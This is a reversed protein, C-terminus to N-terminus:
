LFSYISGFFGPRLISKFLPSARKWSYCSWKTTSSFINVQKLLDCIISHSASVESRLVGAQEFDPLWPSLVNIEESFQQGKGREPEVYPKGQKFPVYKDNFRVLYIVLAPSKSDKAPNQKKDLYTRQGWLSCPKVEEKTLLM